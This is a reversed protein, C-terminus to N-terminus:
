EDTYRIGWISPLFRKTITSKDAAQILNMEANVQGMANITSIVTDVKNDELIKVLADVNAYDAPVFTAGIAKQKEEDVQLPPPTLKRCATLGARPSVSRALILVQYKGEAVIAEAIARGLNGSGGAIAIVPM